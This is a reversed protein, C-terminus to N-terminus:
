CPLLSEIRTASAVLQSATTPSIAKAVALIRVEVVFARLAVCSAQVHGAALASQAVGVTASLVQGPGVGIVSAKLNSLQGAAGLVSVTFTVSVSDPTDDDQAVAANLANQDANVTNQALMATNQDADLAASVATVNDVAFSLTDQASELNALATNVNSQDANLTNQDANVAGGDLGLFLNDNFLQNSAMNVAVLDTGIQTASANSAQDNSLQQVDTNYQGLDAPLQAQLGLLSILTGNMSVLTGEDTTFQALDTLYQTLDMNFSVQAVNVQAQAAKAAAQAQSQQAQDRNVQTNDAALQTNDTFLQNKAATVALSLDVTCTVTTVGLSFPSGSPPTCTPMPLTTDDADSATPLAYNVVASTQSPSTIDVVINPLQSLTLDNDGTTAGAQPGGWSFSRGAAASLPM